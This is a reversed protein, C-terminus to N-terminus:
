DRMAREVADVLHSPTKFGFAVPDGINLYRVRVGAAEVRQAEAVINRIAYTFRHVRASVQIAARSNTLAVAPIKDRSPSTARLCRDRLSVGRLHYRSTLRLGASHGFVGSNAYNKGMKHDWIPHGCIPLNFWTASRWYKLWM